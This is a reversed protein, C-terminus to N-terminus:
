DGVLGHGAAAYLVALALLDQAGRGVHERAAFEVGNRDLVDGDGGADALAREVEVERRFLLEKVGRNQLREVDEDGLEAGGDARVVPLVRQGRM